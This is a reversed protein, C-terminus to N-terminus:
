VVIFVNRQIIYIFIIYNLKTIVLINKKLYVKRKFNKKVIYIHKQIYVKFINVTEFWKWYKWLQKNENLKTQM